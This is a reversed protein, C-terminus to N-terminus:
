DPLRYLTAFAQAHVRAHFDEVRRLGAAELGDFLARDVGLWFGYTAHFRAMEGWDVYVHTYGRRRLWDLLQAANMSAAAEAFPNRNFVVCYDVGRNLYYRRAEGVMLVRGGAATVQNLRAWHPAIEDISRQMLAHLAAGGRALEVLNSGRIAGDLRSLNWAASGVLALVVAAHAAAGRLWGAAAGLLVAAPPVLAIAFRDVLHTGLLWFLVGVILMCGCVGVARNRMSPVADHMSSDGPAACRADDRRAVDMSTSRRASSWAGSARIMVVLLAALGGFAVVGGMPAGYLPSAAIEKWLRAARRPLPRHEEAPLHGRAWRAADADTWLGPREPFAGRALPHVPSGTCAWNRVAWPAVAAATGAAFLVGCFLRRRAPQRPLALGTVVALLLPAAVMPAATYKCGCALGAFLGGTVMWRPSSGNSRSGARLVAALSLGAFILVGNEVYALGSLYAIMPCTAASVAGVVAATPSVERGALWVAAIALVGLWVHIMQATLAAGVPDGHLVMALLYLMEVNFPLNSYINHPLFHIRGAEFYERPAALHYELVDYGNGEAPWLFGPPVSAAMVALAASPVVLLWLWAMRGARPCGHDITSNRDAGRSRRLTWGGIGAGACLIVIWVTRHLLGATGLALMLLSIFGLGLGASMLWRWRPEADAPGAWRAFALGWGTAAAIIGAAILGDTLFTVLSAPSVLGVVINTGAAVLGAVRLASWAPPPPRDTDPSDARGARASM